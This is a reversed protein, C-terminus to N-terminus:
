MTVLRSSNALDTPLQKSGRPMFSPMQEHIGLEELLSTADRSGQKPSCQAVTTLQYLCMSTATIYHQVSATKWSELLNFYVRHSSQAIVSEVFTKEFHM